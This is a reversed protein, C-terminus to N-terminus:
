HLRKNLVYTLKRIAVLNLAYVGAAPPGVLSVENDTDVHSATVKVVNGVRHFEFGSQRWCPGRSADGGHAEAISLVAVVVNV